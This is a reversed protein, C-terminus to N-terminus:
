TARGATAPIPYPHDVTPRAGTTIPRGPRADPLLVGDVVVPSGGVLLHRVGVSPRFTTYTARDEVQGPDFVVVDADAGTQLRGKHRMMPATRALIDAPVLTCRRIAEPLTLLGRERVLVRLVRSFCAASRPHAFATDPLPWLDAPVVPATTPMADSAFAADDITLARDLLAAEAADAEDFTLTLVLGGPDSRRLQELRAVDAIVEGTPTYILSDPERGEKRLESPSLFAAGVVTSGRAYPYAETTVDIGGDHAARLADVIEDVWCSSTSNVHCLHVHAGTRRAVEVLEDVADLATMPGTRASSRSHVFTGTGTTAALDAVTLLEDMAVDPQYGLLMGVGLAGEALTEGLVHVLRDRDRRDLAGIWSHAASFSQFAGFGTDDRRPDPHWGGLVFARAAAWSASYGFNIPRGEEGAREYWAGVTLAGCELDVATTVGDLAQVRAGPLSQAHSHLDVFGPSVVLGTADISRRASSAGSGVSTIQSGTIEVTAIADFGSEPDIVRGGVIALDVPEAGGGVTTATVAM